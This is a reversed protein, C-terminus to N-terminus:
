LCLNMFAYIERCMGVFAFSLPYFLVVYLTHMSIIKRVFLEVFYSLVLDHSFPCIIHFYLDCSSLPFKSRHSAYEYDCFSFHLNFTYQFTVRRGYHCSSFTKLFLSSDALFHIKKTALDFPLDYINPFYHDPLIHLFVHASM